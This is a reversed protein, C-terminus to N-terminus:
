VRSFCRGCWHEALVRKEAVALVRKKAKRISGVSRQRIAQKGVSSPADTEATVTKAVREAATAIKTKGKQKKGKGKKGEKEKAKKEKVGVKAMVSKVLRRPM